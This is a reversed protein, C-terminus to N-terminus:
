DNLALLGAVGRAIWHEEPVKTPIRMFMVFNTSHGTTSLTGRRASTKYVPCDYTNEIKLNKREGPKLWIIPLSDYLVRPYSEAISNEGIDWRAGELFLGYVYQGEDPRVGATRTPQVQFELALLDIPITYRRAYNQLCGTLFSQTFFFGSLWYVTPHGDDIWKRFFQLRSLLDAFYSGLPKMSPYSKSAWSKPITGVLISSSVDELEASMVVLGKVAKQINVLSERVVETLNRFRIVEQLLVTNMSEMMSVPYKQQVALISFAEPLKAHMEAAVESIVQENSRGGGSDTRGQTLLISQLFNDTELQNKTIDANDHLSFVEPKAELPLTKIYETIGAYSTLAPVHYVGSPSFSYNDTQIGPNYVLALLTMLARRDKDDTVRGGYNCQGTLYSLAAYPIEEYESLFNRLQRASIRLDTDNFEYPNNWGIPGFQRREQVLAHFFCLGFLMREFPQQKKSGDYFTKDNIPDSLYSKMLNAKLGKPPENTMKVGNQLLTVPFKDSPYSTLWLRFDRHTTEPSLDECIKELLPMWSIALHCNQLVVWSGESVGASIMKAAIPGQGQGLSISNLRNGGMKKDEAFKIVGTMPDAGPSLVFILPSCPNSDVYSSALDFPPPEVFRKGMKEIIFLQIAAILKDPRICRLVLLKQFANLSDKWRGPLGIEQPDANDFIHKWDSMNDCFLKDFKEFATLASLRCIEGWSKDSIWSPDPNAAQAEGVGVGGTLLFRWEDYNVLNQGKLIAITLLFSFVLKDKEFLSRCVNCYLSETFHKRLNGLRTDLDACKESNEISCILSYQYMPEISALDAICFFLLSSYVAIPKYGIRIEDIKIETKEAIAQKENITNALIKSSSLVQIGTEDELINGESSSLVELIKDEIDQLQKKNDASQLLLQTKIEELEPREKAIVIGLLQDELGEPTIMFNLLTVKTSLEPLYHPNRLKTTVYFRFEPSYEVTSDGLRICTIGGQRFTQKLLLPELVPDLEEGVNELLVPTGFQVANELTRIYDSDTLKVVQLSKAKEMNKIWRNAQGQPDIMLPWRRANSIVIGNDISFADNPLGALTWARVKVPEGLVASLKIDDSCPINKEKCLDTWETVCVDRYAKTFAGLYAVIGSSVLVDGTLAKYKKELDIACQTWRDREDGLSGILKEARILQKSVSDVQHELQEKKDCMAKFKAELNAMRDEVEKLVARKENLKAMTEALEGQAKALAEKKPAVVKAVRDYMEMARVWRCLGEAASSANKIKEPDFEPNDMYKSRIVKMVAVPINDKDYSKLNELFKMDSMLTKSPGWFDEIKKGSGAPDPIKVPKIDKMVCVAEMVLKVGPPPSKMSKLVTIDAPKLTDLASLAAELAPIAEALQAECDEKIATSEAAKKSAVEEDAQVIVKTAQVDKSEREIQEMIMDTEGQTKILQPQLEGLDVQMKAVAGQAFNLKELGNVYRNKLKLVAARRQGLLTKFTRILELYSTPTVYNHRRLIALFKNSQAATSEHFHKCIYVVNARVHNEMEVDRLFTSAVMELADDPWDKFWDITCCNVLSPFKRLRNRFAEGVPSMCLCVHLNERCRDVFFSFLATPTSDTPRSTSRTDARMLEFLEQKEDTAYLNPVEGANLINNIDELFSEEQIQTDSFLFVTPKGQGGAMKFVKKLDDHWNATGYNRSIEVQFVNDFEAVKAALRTLSQRGSGGVGVLLINGRPQQLVRSIRSLHEIAFRFMVLDMPKKSLQNYEALERDMFATLENIDTLEAYAKGATDRPSLYTGFILSRLDDEEVINDHNSDYARFVSGFEMNFSDKITKKSFEFLWNRDSDDILRDYFVRYSEHMWLRAMKAPEPFTDPRSLLVGQIIRAFDRLNFTYHSKKPTPLLNAMAGRYMERTAGVISKTMSRVEKPFNNLALHWDLITEFIRHLTVDDFATITITNFHRLFRTTVINRGGGPPGMAGVFQIDVFEQMSQDQLNFWGGHDMWQRLLEIPPQAGYQERAPMNLDDVFIVCKKGVAPGFSGKKRKDLKSEIIDQTQNASTQASFNIFVPIYVDKALGNMLGDRIYMSKGTGTPGVYLVQKNHRVLLKLLFTYRATDITPVLISDYKAKSPINFDAPITEVWPRWKGGDARDFVFDYISGEPVPAELTFNPPVPASPNSGACLSRFYSNFKARGAENISAGVSWVLSFIFLGEICRAGIESSKDGDHMFDHLMSEYINMLSVLLNSDNTESLEACERRVFALCPNVLWDFMILIVRKQEEDLLDKKIWSAVLTDRWGLRSPEMYIMGCRSVTAPSAVALDRVEFILSMSSSLQIIEGSNLCLKKNDDLVTNMNEIWIADVPGDFIVWKRDPSPSSAFNRFGVALVGDAWERTVPDDDGYLQGMTISKPNLIFTQVKSESAPNAKCMDTLAGQLVKYGATKGSFPDGVLMFGHRVLMMEYVQLVKELFAPVMQLNMRDCNGQIAKILLEYDPVPLTIGPFLDATIGRFLPIDQSLFKALNVDIISRLVIINENENPYKLKLAGAANLVSKVARMGYDYHDQSSLQESCLRYTATIKVSLSKAAVYGFSYLSIEAILTYDPVMMAVPRFLAKLNDPLESRGAYGPNMTIFCNCVPNLNLETGEFVFVELKAAKARQITLIQQAVVSLVELDIRNFEDFCAWAGASALGKFFKGMATFNLGDSCNYVVCFMALAKALDKVTETKGTGAPGEPAGGLNLQLAGFLTRYCRDTLTTIVLRATNGLYEYGYKQVSNIMKVLVGTEKDPFYYRLQSLWSFDSVSTIKEAELQSVVDRAHVDIVVLAELTTRALRSLNGRVLEVIKELRERSQEVYKMLGNAKGELLVFEVEKTWFIQSVGLVVQGPWELVWKERTTEKYADFATATVTRMSALMAKEVDVLWREVAGQAASTSVINNFKIFEKQSSYMGSIDLASDFELSNVGEFCKKLHPQVRTPDRTESLIELMEDNSLFFFRPFFLRKIELYQNLGKQILELEVNSDKLRTLLDPMASVKLVHHDQACYAMIEKWTKNVSVFRKGETPMQHMIDESSFIPELYLWTSQVKLWEDLIEQMTLLREEWQRTEEDFAKIFPSGRMTQTKVIHDDFMSQIEDVASLIQTGTDRYDVTVYEVGQWEVYMKQLAKEFSYEKTAVSSIQELSDLYQDLNRELVGSLSTSEDPQYRFGVVHSIEKWHRERLGPNCLTTILPLNLKFRDMQEKTFEAIELPSPDHEFALCLKYINRWMNSVESEVVEPDLKLFPGTMWTHYCRQFDVSTQYLSLFPALADITETLTPFRTPEWGFMEEERNFGITKELASDLRTQLRQATKLYKTIEGYDGFSHYEEVQKAYSDIEIFLKERRAKLEDQNTMRSKLLINEGEAFVPVIRSPWSFLITNQDFDDKKLESYTILFELRKKAEEVSDELKRMTVNRTTDIFKQLAVMEDVNNPVTLITRAIEEFSSIVMTNSQRNDHALRDLIKLALALSRDSLDRLFEDCHLEVLSFYVIYHYASQINVTAHHKWRKVENMMAEASPESKLFESVDVDALKTVLAGHRDFEHLYVQPATLLRTLNKKLEAKCDAVFTPFTAEFAVRICQEPRVNAIGSRANTSTPQGTSFLQTEIRPVRDAAVLLGELLAEVTAQVDAPVPDLRLKTDDLQLRLAFSVPRAGECRKGVTAVNGDFLDLFDRVSARVIHRLQDGLIFSVMRFFGEMRETHIHSWENRKSGQYFVNLMAPYWSTMLKEHAKEFRQTMMTKFLRLEFSGGKTLIPEMDFLRIDKFRNWMDQIGIITPNVVFLLERILATSQNVFDEEGTKTSGGYDSKERPDHEALHGGKGKCSSEGGFCPGEESMLGDKKNHELGGCMLAKYIQVGGFRVSTYGKNFRGVWREGIAKKVSMHYDERMEGSLIALSPRHLAKLREPLLELVNSLWEDEMEAVHHTDIGNTIYYYYRQMIDKEQPTGPRNINVSEENKAEPKPDPQSAPKSDGTGIRSEIQSPNQRALPTESLRLLPAFPLATFKIMINVLTTRFSERDRKVGKEGRLVVGGAGNGVGAGGGVTGAAGPIASVAVHQGGVDPRAIAPVPNLSPGQAAPAADFRAPSGQPGVRTRNPPALHEASYGWMGACEGRGIEEWREGVKIQSRGDNVSRMFSALLRNAMISGPNRDSPPKAAFLPSSGFKPIMSWPINQPREWLM